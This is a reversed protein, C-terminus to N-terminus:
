GQSSLHRYHARKVPQPREEFVLPAFEKLAKSYVSRKFYVVERMPYWYTVWRWEEFEPKESSDLCFNKEECVLRLL